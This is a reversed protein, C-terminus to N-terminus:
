IYLYIFIHLALNKSPTRIIGPGQPPDTYTHVYVYLHIYRDIYIYVYKHIYM